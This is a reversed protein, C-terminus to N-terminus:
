KNERYNKAIDRSDYRKREKAAFKMCLKTIIIAMFIYWMSVLVYFWWFKYTSFYLALLWSIIMLAYHMIATAFWSTKIGKYKVIKDSAIYKDILVSNYIFHKGGIIENISDEIDAAYGRLMAVFTHSQLGRQLSMMQLVPVMLCVLLVFYSDVKFIDLLPVILVPVFNVVEPSDGKNQFFLIDNCISNYLALLATIRQEGDKEDLNDGKSIEIMQNVM